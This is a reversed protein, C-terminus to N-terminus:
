TSWNGRDDRTRVDRKEPLDGKNFREGVGRFMGNSKLAHIREYLTQPAFFEDPAEGLDANPDEPKTPPFLCRSCIHPFRPALLLETTEGCETCADVGYDGIM